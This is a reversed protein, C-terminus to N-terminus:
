SRPCLNFSQLTATHQLIHVNRTEFANHRWPRTKLPVQIIEFRTDCWLLCWSPIFQLATWFYCSKMVPEKTVLKRSDGCCDTGSTTSFVKFFEMWFLRSDGSTHIVVTISESKVRKGAFEVRFPIHPSPFFECWSSLVSPLTAMRQTNWSGHLLKRPCLCCFNRDSFDGPHTAASTLLVNYVTSHMDYNYTVISNVRVLRILAWNM